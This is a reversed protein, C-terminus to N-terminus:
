LFSHIFPHIVSVTVLFPHNGLEQVLKIERVADMSMGERSDRMRIKKIAVIKRDEPFSLSAELDEREEPASPKKRKRGILPRQTEDEKTEEEVTREPKTKPVAEESLPVEARDGPASFLLRKRAQEEFVRVHSPLVEALFVIGSATWPLIFCWPLVCESIGSSLRFSPHHSVEM